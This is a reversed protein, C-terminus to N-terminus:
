DFGCAYLEQEIEHVFQKEFYLLGTLELGDILRGERTCAM